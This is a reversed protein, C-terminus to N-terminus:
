IEKLIIAGSGQNVMLEDDKIVIQGNVITMIPKGICKTGDFPSFKAKSFFKSADIKFERKLDVIVFDADFNKSIRGKNKINFIQAPKEAYFKCFDFLTLQNQKIKNLFIPLVTELQPIGSPAKLFDNNKEEISHPAHDTAIIDIIGDKLAQLLPVQNLKDRLPPLMKAITGYQYIDDKSLFLHHPTVESSIKLKTSKKKFKSILSIDKKTSLHCFHIEGNIDECINLIENITNYENMENHSNLFKQIDSNSKDIEAMNKIYKKFEPHILIKVNNKACIEIIKKFIPIDSLDYNVMPNNLLLKIGFIGSQAMKQIEFLNNPIGCYFGVNCLTKKKASDIKQQLLKLSLTAPKTNPMDLITTIGGHVAAATASYYDEKYSLELDRCHVHIDVLGPLIFNNNIDITKDAKILNSRKGIKVIKGNNISIGGDIIQNDMVIRCNILNLDCINIINNSM